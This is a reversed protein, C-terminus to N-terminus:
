FELLGVDDDQFLSGYLSCRGLGYGCMSTLIAGLADIAWDTESMLALVSQSM